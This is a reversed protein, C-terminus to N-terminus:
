PKAAPAQTETGSAPDAKLSVSGLDKVSSSVRIGRLAKCFFGPIVGKTDPPGVEQRTIERTKKMEWQTGLKTTGISEMLCLKISRIQIHKLVEASQLTVPLTRVEQEIVRAKGYSGTVGDIRHQNKVNFFPNSETIKAKISKVDDPKLTNEERNLLLGEYFCNECLVFLDYKGPPLGSFSFANDSGLSALYVQNTMDSNVSRANKASAGGELDSLASITPFKQPMALVGLVESPPEALVGRIGGGADPDTKSYLNISVHTKSYPSMNGPNIKIGANASLVAAATLMAAIAAAAAASRAHACLRKM